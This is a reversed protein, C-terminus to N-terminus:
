INIRERLPFFLFLYDSDINFEIIKEELEMNNLLEFKKKDSENYILLKNIM